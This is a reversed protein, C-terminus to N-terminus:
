TPVGIAIYNIRTTIGSGSTGTMVPTFQTTTPSGSIRTYIRNNPPSSANVVFNVYIPASGFAEGFTVASHSTANQTNWQVLLGGPLFLKGQTTLTPNGRTFQLVNSNENIGFLEANGSSDDKCFQIFADAIATPNNTPGSVTRNNLNVAKPKFTSEGDQIAVWNPRIVDGVLRLKTTDTPQAPDFAM